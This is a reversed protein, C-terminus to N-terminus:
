IFNLFSITTLYLIIFQLFIIFYILFWIMWIDFTKWNGFTVFWSVPSHYSPCTINSAKSIFRIVGNTPGQYVCQGKALLYLQDFMEFISSSPQHIVCIITRGGRALNKMLSVCQICSTSDLGSFFTNVPDTPFLFFVTLSVTLFSNGKALLM